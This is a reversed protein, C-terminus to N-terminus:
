PTTAWAGVLAAGEGAIPTLRVKLPGDGSVCLPGRSPAISFALDKDSAVSRGQADVLAVEVGGPMAAIVRVCSGAKVVPSTWDVGSVTVSVTSLPALPTM